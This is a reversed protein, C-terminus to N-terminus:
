TIQIINKSGQSDTGYDGSKEQKVFPFENHLRTHDGWDKGQKSPWESCINHLSEPEVDPEMCEQKISVEVYLPVANREEM